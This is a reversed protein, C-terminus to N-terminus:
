GRWNEDDRLTLPVVRACIKSADNIEIKIGRPQPMVSRRAEVAQGGPQQGNVLWYFCSSRSPSRESVFTSLKTKFSRRQSDKHVALGLELVSEDCCRVWLFPIEKLGFTKM